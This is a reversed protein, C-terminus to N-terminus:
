KTINFLEEIILTLGVAAIWIGLLCLVAVISALLINM